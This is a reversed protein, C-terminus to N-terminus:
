DSKRANRAASVESLKLPARLVTQNVSTRMADDFEGDTSSQVEQDCVSV